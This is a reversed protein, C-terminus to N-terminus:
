AQHGAAPQNCTAGTHSRNTGLGHTWCYYMKVGNDTTIAHQGSNSSAGPPVVASAAANVITAAAHAGHYGASQATLQRIREKNAFTFHAKFNAMTHEVVPRARWTTAANTFVGTKEFLPLTLRLVASDPIDEGAATAFRLCEQIRIWLDELPSDPSWDASLLARNAEIEDNSIQGYEAKLHALMNTASVDAYGFDNDELITLYRGEVALLIQKKLEEKVTTYLTHEALAAKFTRNTETIQPGTAGAAHVPNDGPHAPPVFVAHTRADYDVAPMVLALHGNAGGGRTSRVARANAYLEKQLIQISTNTPQGTIASLSPHPFTLTPATSSM